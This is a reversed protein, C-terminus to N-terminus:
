EMYLEGDYFREQFEIAKMIEEATFTKGDAAVIWKDEADNLRHYVAIIRGSYEKVPKDVGLLYIDQEAGDGAIIGEIYGYNIPYVLSPTRPHATGLPRDIKCDVQRGIIGSYDPRFAEKHVTAEIFYHKELRWKGESFCDDIHRVKVLEFDSFLSIIDERDVFYHPVGKEPGETKVVTNADVKPLGSLAYTWTEKSCLTMFVTGEPKLVRRIESMIKKMGESDAHGASHMAFICDFADDAFPLSMMDARVCTFDIGLEKRTKRLFSLAEDSYDLATVKFGYKSFLVTHRGLGCGLDLVSRRGERKWKEAYYWSEECPVLWGSKDEMKSWDFVGYEEM